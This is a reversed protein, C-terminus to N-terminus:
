KFNASTLPEVGSDGAETMGLVVFVLSKDESFRLPEGSSTAVVEGEKAMIKGASKGKFLYEAVLKRNQDTITLLIFDEKKNGPGPRSLQKSRVVGEFVALLSTNEKLTASFSSDKIRTSYFDASKCFSEPLPCGLFRTPLVPVINATKAPPPSATPKKFFRLQMLYYVFITGLIVLIGIIILPPPLKGFFLKKPKM